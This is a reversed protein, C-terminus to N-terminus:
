YSHIHLLFVYVGVLVLSSVCVVLPCVYLPILVCICCYSSVYIAATHFVYVATRPCVYLLMLVCVCCYARVCMSALRCLYLLMRACICCCVVARPLQWGDVLLVEATPPLSLCAAERAEREQRSAEILAADVPPCLPNGALFSFRPLQRMRSAEEYEEYELLQRFLYLSLDAFVGADREQM